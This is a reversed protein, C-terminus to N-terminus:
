IQIFDLNTMFAQIFLLLSIMKTDHVTKSFYSVLKQLSLSKLIFFLVGSTKKKTFSFVKESGARFNLFHYNLLYTSSTVRWANAPLSPQPTRPLTFGERLVELRAFWSVCRSVRRTKADGNVPIWFFSPNDNSTWNSSFM